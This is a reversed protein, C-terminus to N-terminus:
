INELEIGLVKKIMFTLSEDKEKEPNLIFFLPKKSLLIKDKLYGKLKEFIRGDLVILDIKEELLKEIIQRNDEKIILLNDEKLGLLSFGKVFDSYGVIKFM